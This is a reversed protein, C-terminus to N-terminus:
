KFSLELVAKEVFCQRNAKLFLHCGIVAGYQAPRRHGLLPHSYPFAQIGEPDLTNTQHHENENNCFYSYKKLYLRFLPKWYLFVKKLFM